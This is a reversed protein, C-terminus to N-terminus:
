MVAANRSMTTPSFTASMTGVNPENFMTPPSHSRYAMVVVGGLGGVTSGPLNNVGGGSAVGTGVGVAGGGSPAM